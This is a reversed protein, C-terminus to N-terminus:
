LHVESLIKITKPFLNKDLKQFFLYDEVCDPAKQFYWLIYNTFISDLTQYNYKLDFRSFLIQLSDHYVMDFKSILENITMNISAAYHLVDFLIPLYDLGDIDIFVPSGNKDWIINHNQVDGHQLFTMNNKDLSAFKSYEILREIILNDHYKDDFIHGPIREILLVLKRDNSTILKAHPYNFVSSLNEYKQIIFLYRKRSYPFTYAVDDIFMIFKARARLFCVSECNNNHNFVIHSHLIQRISFTNLPKILDRYYDFYFFGKPLFKKAFYFARNEIRRTRLLKIFYKVM